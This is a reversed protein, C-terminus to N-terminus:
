TRDLERAELGATRQTACNKPRYPRIASILAAAPQGPLGSVTSCHDSRPGSLTRSAASPTQSRGLRTTPVGRTSHLLPHYRAPAQGDM